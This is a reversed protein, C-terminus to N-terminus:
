QDIIDKVKFDQTQYDIKGTKNNRYYHIQRSKGNPMRVSKTRYKKWDTIKSGDNTLIKVVRQNKIGGELDIVKSGKIAKQTLKGDKGLIGAEQFALQTRLRLANAVSETKIIKDRHNVTILKAAKLNKLGKGGFATLAAYTYDGAEQGVLANDSVARVGRRVGTRVLQAGKDMLETLTSLVGFTAADLTDNVLVLGDIGLAGLTPLLDEPKGQGTEIREQAEYWEEIKEAIAQTAREFSAELNRPPSSPPGEFSLSSSEEEKRLSLNEHEKEVPAKERSKTINEPKSAEEKESKQSSHPNRQFHITVLNTAPDIQSYKYSKYPIEEGQFAISFTSKGIEILGGISM